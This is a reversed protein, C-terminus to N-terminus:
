IDKCIDVFINVLNTKSIKGIVKLKTESESDVKEVVPLSDIEHNIIKVAAEIVGEDPSATIINPMRTMIVGVPISNVDFKGITSKLLDKRSVLGTLIGEDTVVYISGVNELFMKVITDAITTNETVVVPISKVESVTLSKLQQIRFNESLNGTYFYGVKPRAELMGIMTLVSLDPRLTARTLELRKAIDEGTVPPNEKVIEIIKEQRDTLKIKIM